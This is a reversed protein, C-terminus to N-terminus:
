HMLTWYVDIEPWSRLIWLFHLSTRHAGPQSLRGHLFLSICLYLLSPDSSRRATLPVWAFIFVSLFLSLSSEIPTQLHPVGMCFNSDMFRLQGTRRLRSSHTRGEKTSTRFRRSSYAKGQNFEWSRISTSSTRYLLRVTAPFWDSPPLGFDGLRGSLLFPPWFLFFLPAAAGCASKSILKRKVIM